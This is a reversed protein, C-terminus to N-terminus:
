ALIYNLWKEFIARLNIQEALARIDAKQIIDRVYQNETIARVFPHELIARIEANENITRIDFDQMFARIDNQFQEIYELVKHKIADFDVNKLIGRIDLNEFIDRINLNQITSRIDLNELAPIRGDKEIPVAVPVAVNTKSLTMKPARVIINVSKQTPLAIIFAVEKDKNNEAKDLSFGALRAAKLLPLYETAARQAHMAALTLLSPLKEWAVEFRAAPNSEIVGAEAKVTASYDQCDAGWGLKASVKHQSPLVADACVKWKEAIPFFVLQARSTPKDLYAALQYGVNRDSRVVRAIVALVAPVADELLKVKRQLTEISSASSSRAHSMLYQDKHFKQFAGYTDNGRFMQSSSSSSSSSASRSSSISSSQSLRSLRSSRSSRSSSSSSSSSNKNKLGAELIERLKMLIINEEQIESEVVNQRTLKEAANAGVHVEFELRELAPGDGRAVSIRAKHQGVLYYLPNYGMFGAHRSAVEVCGKVHFYPCTVCMTKQISAPIWPEAGSAVAPALSAVREAPLDEINRAVALTEFSVAAVHDPTAAPLVEVKFNGKPLDARVAMKGPVATHVKGKAMVAAQILATNVGIVAFTHIAASPRAEAKVQFDTNKFQDLSVTELQEPLRPTIDAKVNVAAAAVAATYFGLEMPVGVATPIIRRIEAALLPKTYQFAIGDQLAKIAEKMLERARPKATQVAQDIIQEIFTKDVNAFAIEQGFLKVYISALPQTAPLAKWNMLAKLTHKIKTMRDANEDGAPTRKLAEQLGETRVGVELVDAAAGALYARTKAVVARPLITAADNIIFASGAAGVMVPSVYLDLHLATSSLYSLRDMKPCLMRIAVNAAAAVNMLDPSMSRTLSKIYSYAFSAVEMSPEKDMAGAVTTMLAASPKTEVLAICAVMRVEPHLTRDMFLQLAVPQVMKPEKKAINRLALIADVQVKMPMNAAAAGFGPLIKMIPKLSAPHGANGLAKLALTVEFIDAKSIAEAALDHIPKLLDPSCAPAEACHKAVMSGYGLMVVERVAPIAKIKPSLALRATHQIAAPDATAMHLGVLLAQTFEATTFEGAHFKEEIFRLAVPTGVVPVADLIWRRHVPKTKYQDWITQIKEFTAVRLLQVLQLFKLPADEHVVDMNNTALHNLVEVIQAEANNIKLLQIPTQLIETAFEYKLSGRAAYDGGIPAIATNQVELLTLTQKAKMQAAGTITNFLSFQHLEEVTAEAVVAGADSPKMIYTHTATGTLSQLRQQCEACKEAYALGIDKIVREHCHTLDKSKRVIIQNTKADESIMYHAKCVGHTGAEHMEYVNQTNKLNLQLINLIGRYLNLVTASVGAPAYIKGVVGNAYEFKIPIQLQANLAALLKAAPSFSDQPWIGAYEFLQPDQLKLLFTTSAEARILVKSSVKVGAKGLGEQPLGGLLLGEYKYVYTKGAAFEPVLNIQQSAVLAVTLVLVVARM